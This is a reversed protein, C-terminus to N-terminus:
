GKKKRNKPSMSKTPFSLGWDEKKRKKKKSALSSLIRAKQINDSGIAGTVVKPM